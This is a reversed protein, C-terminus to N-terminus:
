THVNAPLFVYNILIRDRATKAEKAQYMDIYKVLVCIESKLSTSNHETCLITSSATIHIHRPCAHPSYIFYRDSGGVDRFIEPGYLIKEVNSEDGQKKKEILSGKRLRNKDTEDLFVGFHWGHM